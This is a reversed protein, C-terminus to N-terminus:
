KMLVMKKSISIGEGQLAYIYMGSSVAHGNSDMGNWIVSHYGHELNGDVLTNILRGTMDYINLSIHGADKIRFSLETTPNFPNPYADNLSYEEPAPKIIRSLDFTNFGDGVVMNETFTFGESYEIVENNTKDYYKFTMEEGIDDNSYVQIIYIYRDDFPFYMRKAIGRCEDDVFVGVLDGDSDERNEISATITGIFEFDAYNFDWYQIQEPLVIERKNGLRAALGDFEPYVLEGPALMQLLYGNGPELTQLTGYWDGGQASYNTSTGDSQSAVFEADTGLSELAVNLAGPNQPLYGIWNWGAILSIPASGLDVPIGTITLTAPVVMKIKYMQTPELIELSGYWDGGQSTYNTSTGSSLSAVFEADSGLSELIGSLSNDEPAVNFSIWNWGAVLEISLDVTTQINLIHPEVANGIIDNTIFTYDESVDDIIDEAANYFQFALLDGDDNSRLQIDFSYGGCLFDLGSQSCMIGEQNEEYYPSWPPLPLRPAVGRITGDPGYAVLLDGAGGMQMDEKYVLPTMSATFEYGGPNDQWDPYNPPTDSCEADICVLSEDWCEIEAGPGNCLGCEDMDTNLGDCVGCDDIVADGFCVGACDQDVNPPNGTNGMSCVECEDYIATGNCDGNCDEAASGGCVGACNAISGDCDCVGEDIGDGGCEGCEDVISSGGCIGACDYINGECDCTGLPIYTCSNNFRSASPDWNCANPDTCGYCHGGLIEDKCDQKTGTISDTCTIFLVFVIFMLKKMKLGQNIIQRHMLM